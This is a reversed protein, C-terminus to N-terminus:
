KLKGKYIFLTSEHVPGHVLPCPKSYVYSIFENNIGNMRKNSDFNKFLHYPANCKTNM